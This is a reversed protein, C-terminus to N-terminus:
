NDNIHSANRNHLRIRQLLTKAMFDLEQQKEALEKYRIAKKHIAIKQSQIDVLLDRHKALWDTGVSLDIFDTPSTFLSEATYLAEDIQAILVACANNRETQEQTAGYFFSLSERVTKVPDDVLNQIFGM